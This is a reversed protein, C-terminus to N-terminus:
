RRKAVLVMRSSGPSTVDIADGAFNSSVSVARWGTLEMLEKLEAPSYIRHDVNFAGEHRIHPGVIRYFTWKNVMYSRESDYRRDELVLVNAAMQWGRGEFHRLLWDRNITEVVFVGGKVIRKSLQEFTKRDAEKGYYGMSTFTDVIGKLPKDDPIASAIDRYDGVVFKTRSSVQKSEAYRAARKIFDPSIDVGLVNFRQKALPVSIRGIGCCLDLVRDGGRLGRKRLIAAIQKADKVGAAKRANLFPLYLYPKEVFLKQTWHGSLRRM